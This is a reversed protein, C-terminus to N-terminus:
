LRVQNEANWWRCQIDMRSDTGVLQGACVGSTILTGVTAADRAMYWVNISNTCLDVTSANEITCQKIEIM